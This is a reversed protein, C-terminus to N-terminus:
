LAFTKAGASVLVASATFVTTTGIAFVVTRYPQIARLYFVTYLVRMAVYIPLLVTLALAEETCAGGQSGALVVLLAAWFITLDVPINELDNMIARMRRKIDEPPPPMKM